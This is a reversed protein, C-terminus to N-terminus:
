KVDSAVAFKFAAAITSTRVWANAPPLGAKIYNQGLRRPNGWSHCILAAGM